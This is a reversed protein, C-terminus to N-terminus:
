AGLVVKAFRIVKDDLYFGKEVVDIIKGKLKKKDVPMQSIAEHYETNFDSGKKDEMPKLGNKQLINNFKNYILDFGEKSAKHDESEELAKQAREFDDIVPLLDTMLDEHATKILDLRERATRRRFNEFESYLRLYKDKAEQVEAKLKEIEDEKINEDASEGSVKEEEIEMDAQEQPMEEEALEVEKVAESADLAEPNEAKGKDIDKAM